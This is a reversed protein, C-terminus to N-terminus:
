AAQALSQFWHEAWLAAVGSHASSQPETPPRFDSEDFDQISWDDLGLESEIDQLGEGFESLDNDKSRNREFPQNTGTLKNTM